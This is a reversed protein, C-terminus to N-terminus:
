QPQIMETNSLSTKQWNFRGYLAAMYGKTITLEPWDFKIINWLWRVTNLIGLVVTVPWNTSPMQSLVLWVPCGPCTLRSLNAQCTMRSPHAQVPSGPCSMPMLLATSWPTQVQCSSCSLQSL